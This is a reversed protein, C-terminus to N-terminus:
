APLVIECALGEARWDFRIEGKLQDRIMSEIVRTGFGKKTPAPWQVRPGGQETWRLVLRGDAAPSWEVEVRGDPASLAGYKAANTALEHLAVAITQATDAELSLAPGDIRVRSGGDGSYPSLEQTVVSRLEAGSWHSQAFLSHVNAIAQIRGEIAQKVGEVTGSRTLRVTAQVTALLNKTRHEAERALLAIKEENKKREILDAAQRALVDILLLQRQNPEHPQRWHNTIMGILGGSRSMLPTSQAARIGCQRLADHAPTGVVFDCVDIDPIVVRCGARLAAACSTGAGPGVWEFSGILAPDFGRSGLLRLEGKVSDLIQMTAMDSHMLMVAADLIGEYLAEVNDHQLLRTSIEQLRRMDALEASLRQEHERARKAAQKQETIDRAIKSAGIVKGAANRVPSVTLSVDIRSGHKRVRVTEYHEIRQGRRIREIISAEEDQREPPILITVSQGIAEEATYGFLREAGKNWSTISSDLNKSIIADDSSEVIAALRREIEENRKRESIDVLMNVAGIVEGAADRLPTPFPIFPVRTGDPREAMAEMGRVARNEKLAIAMPCQDHPLATGDPWFLKWSGCWEASGLSPRHGWLDVAAQNYYTICGKSDTVYVAAPLAELVEFFLTEDATDPASQREVLHEFDIVSQELGAQSMASCEFRDQGALQEFNRSSRPGLRAEFHIDDLLIIGGRGALLRL